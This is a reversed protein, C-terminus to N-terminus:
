ARAPGTGSATRGPPKCGGALAGRAATGAATGTAHAACLKNRSPPVPFKKPCMGTRVPRPVPGQCDQRSSEHPFASSETRSLRLPPCIHASASEFPKCPTSVLCRTRTSPPMQPILRLWTPLHARKGVFRHM